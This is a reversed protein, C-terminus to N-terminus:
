AAGKVLSESLIWNTPIDNATPAVLDPQYAFKRCHAETTHGSLVLVTWYGMQFGGLIDTSMTTEMWTEYFDLKM